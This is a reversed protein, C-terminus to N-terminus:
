SGEKSIPADSQLVFIGEQAGGQEMLAYRGVPMVQSLKSSFCAAGQKFTLKQGDETATLKIAQCDKDYWIEVYKPRDLLRYASASVYMSRSNLRIAPGSFYTRNNPQYKQFNLREALLSM